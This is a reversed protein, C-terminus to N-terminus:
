GPGVLMQYLAMRGVLWAGEKVMEKHHFNHEIIIIALAKGLEELVVISL